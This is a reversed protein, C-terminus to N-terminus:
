SVRTERSSKVWKDRHCVLCKGPNGISKFETNGCFICSYDAEEPIFKLPHDCDGLLIPLGSKIKENEFFLISIDGNIEEIAMRVQGLQSVREIRLAAFLEETGLDKSTNEKFVFSGDRILIEPGGEMFNEIFDFREVLYTLHRYLLVVVTFVLVAALIGVESYFMPDGAASGLGIIVVLEFISLQKIGRRGLIKVGIIIILFMIATRVLIEWAFKWDEKGIFFPEDFIEALIFLSSM